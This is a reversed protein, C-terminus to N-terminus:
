GRTNGPSWLRINKPHECKRSSSLEEREKKRSINQDEGPKLEEQDEWQDM